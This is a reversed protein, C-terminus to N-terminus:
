GFIGAKRAETRELVLSRIDAVARERLGNAADELELEATEIAANCADIREGMQSAFADLREAVALFLRQGPTFNYGCHPCRLVVGPQFFRFAVAFEGDCTRCRVPIEFDSLSAAPTASVAVPASAAAAPATAPAEGEVKKDAPMGRGPSFRSPYEAGFDKGPHLVKAREFLVGESEVRGPDTVCCDVPCVAACAEYDYFGVCETCKEPVIYFIEAALAASKKGDLDYEVGGQYIATNPCEPECAGCNICETTIITAMGVM